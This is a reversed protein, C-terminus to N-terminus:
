IRVLGEAPPRVAKPLEGAKGVAGTVPCILEKPVPPHGEPLVPQRVGDRMAGGTVPPHWSPLGPVGAQAVPISRAAVPESEGALTGSLLLLGAAAAILTGLVKM